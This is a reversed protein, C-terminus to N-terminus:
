PRATAHKEPLELRPRRVPLSPDWVGEDNVRAWTEGNVLRRIATQEVGFTNAMDIIRVGSLFLRRIEPVLTPTIKCVGSAIRSQMSRLIEGQTPPRQTMGLKVLSGQGGGLINLDAFGLSRCLAIWAIELANLHDWSAAFDLQDIKVNARGHKMIWREVPLRGASKARSLHAQLRRKVTGITRGVYRIGKEPHCTCSLGYIFM